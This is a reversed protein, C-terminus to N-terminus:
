RRYRFSKPARRLERRSIYGDGNRDIKNFHIKIDGSVDRRSLRKKHKFFVKVKVVKHHKHHRKKRHRGNDALTFQPILLAFLVLLSAIKTIRKKM